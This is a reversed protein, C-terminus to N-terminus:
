NHKASLPKCGLQCDTQTRIKIPYSIILANYSYVYAKLEKICRKVISDLREKEQELESGIRGSDLDYVEEQLLEFDEDQDRLTQHIESSLETMVNEDEDLPVSGPQFGLTGLREILDKLQNNSEQLATLRDSINEFSM